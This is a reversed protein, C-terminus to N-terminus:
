GGLETLAAALLANAQAFLMTATGIPGADHSTMGTEADQCGTSYDTLATAITTAAKAFQPPAPNVALDNQFTAVDAALTNVATISAAVDGTALPIMAATLNTSLTGADKSIMM